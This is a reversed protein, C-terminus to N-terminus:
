IHYPICALDSFHHGVKAVRHVMALWGGRDLPDELWSYQLPNGHGGGPSKEWEPISGKSRKDGANAPLNKIVLAM